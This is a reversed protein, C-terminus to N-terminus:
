ANDANFPIVSAISNQGLIKMLLRDVGLAIGACDPLGQHMASLLHKPMPPVSLDLKKRTEQDKKFRQELEANDTLEKYGNALELGDWYIEARAAVSNGFEDTKQESLAAQSIPFDTVVLLGMPMQPEILHSMLLNLNDDRHLTNSHISIHTEVCQSLQEDSCTHPDMKLASLFLERYTLHTVNKPPSLSLLQYASQILELTESVLDNLSFGVRYWELMTFEPNHNTGLEDSRFAKGLQYISGSGAALLRKMAFEPSTQLYKLSGANNVELSALHPDLATTACLLPSDVEMVQRMEFFTRIHRLLEARQKLTKLTATPQWSM